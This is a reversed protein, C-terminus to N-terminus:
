KLVEYTEEFIDRKIPYFEGRVGKIIYDGIEFQMEGELTKVFCWIADGHINFIINSNFKCTKEILMDTNLGTFLEKDIEPLMEKTFQFVEVEIPKKVAKFTKPIMIRNRQEM